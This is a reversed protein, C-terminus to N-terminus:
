GLDAGPGMGLLAAELADISGEGAEFRDAAARVAAVLALAAERDLAALDLGASEESQRPMLRAVLALYQPMFWRRAIDLTQDGRANFHELVTLAARKSLANRSGLKRGPSGTLFRGQPDRPTSRPFDSGDM